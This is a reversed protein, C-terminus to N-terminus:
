DKASQESMQAGSRQMNREKCIRPPCYRGATHQGGLAHTKFMDRGSTACRGVKHQPAKGRTQATVSSSPTLPLTHPLSLSLTSLSLAFKWAARHGSPLLTGELWRERGRAKRQTVYRFRQSWPRVRECMARWASCPGVERSWMTKARRRTSYLGMRLSTLQVCAAAPHRVARMIHLRALRSCVRGDICAGGHTSRRGISPRAHALGSHSDTTDSPRMNRVFRTSFQSSSELQACTRREKGAMHSRRADNGVLSAVQCPRTSRHQGM